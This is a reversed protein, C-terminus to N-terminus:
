QRGGGREVQVRYASEGPQRDDWRDARARPCSEVRYRNGGDATRKRIALQGTVNLTAGGNVNVDGNDISVTPIILQNLTANGFTFHGVSQEGLGIDLEQSITIPGTFKSLDM